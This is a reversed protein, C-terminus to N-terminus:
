EYLCSTISDSSLEIAVYTLKKSCATMLPTMGHADFSDLPIKQQVLFPILEEDCLFHLGTQLSTNTMTLLDFSTLGYTSVIQLFTKLLSENGSLMAVHIPLLSQANEITLSSTGLTFFIIPLCKVSAKYLTYHLANGYSSFQIDEMLAKTHRCYNLLETLKTSNDEQIIQIMSSIRAQTCVTTLQTCLLSTKTLDNPELIVHINRTITDILYILTPLDNMGLILLPSLTILPISKSDKGDSHHSYHCASNSLTFWRKKRKHFNSSIFSPDLFEDGEKAKSLWIWGSYNGGIPSTAGSNNSPLAM